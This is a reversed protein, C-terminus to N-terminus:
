RSPNAFTEAATDHGCAKQDGSECARLLLARVTAPQADGLQGRELYLAFMRCNVGGYVNCTADFHRRAADRETPSRANEAMMRGVMGCGWPERAECAKEFLRRACIESSPPAPLHALWLWAGYNTCGIALGLTCARAYLPAYDGGARQVASAHLVCADAIGDNCRAECTGDGECNTDAGESSRLDPVQDALCVPKERPPPPALPKSSSCATLVLWSTWARFM